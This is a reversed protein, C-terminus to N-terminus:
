TTKKKKKLSVAGGSIKGTKGGRERGSARGIEEGVQGAPRREASARGLAMHMALHGGAQGARDAELVAGVAVHLDGEVRDQRCRLRVVEQGDRLFAAGRDGRRRAVLVAVDDQAAALRRVVVRLADVGGAGFGGAGALDSSCVDSSWDSIRM